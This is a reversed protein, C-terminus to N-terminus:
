ESFEECAEDGGLHWEIHTLRQSVETGFVCVGGDDGMYPSPEFLNCDGCTSPEPADGLCEDACRQHQDCEYGM